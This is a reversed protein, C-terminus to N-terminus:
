AHKIQGVVEDRMDFSEITKNGQSFYIESSIKDLRDLAQVVTWPQLPYEQRVVSYFLKVAHYRDLIRVLQALQSKVAIWDGVLFAVELKANLITRRKLIQVHHLNRLFHSVIVAHRGFHVLGLLCCGKGLTELVPLLRSGSVQGGGLLVELLILLLRGVIRGGIIIDAGLAQEVDNALLPLVFHIPDNRQAQVTVLPSLFGPVVAQDLRAVSFDFSVLQKEDVAICQLHEVVLLEM